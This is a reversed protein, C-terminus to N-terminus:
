RHHDHIPKMFAEIADFEGKSITKAASQLSEQLWGGGFKDQLFGRAYDSGNKHYTFRYYEIFVDVVYTSGGILVITLWFLPSNHTIGVIKQVKSVSWWDSFWVYGIYVCVSMISYFFFSVSTWWKTQTVLKMTVVTYLCTFSTLSLTWIDVNQGNPLLVNNDQFIAIPVLCIILSHAIGILNQYMYNNWTFLQQKAGIYYLAPYLKKVDDGELVYNIDQEFLARIVLPWSTFFLNYFSIYNDDFITMGSFGNTFAFYLHPVTLVLNKYFFYLICEANRLYCLRGHHMLLRWLYKFEGLAFDSSQVASMGENGYLGIGIHAERIMSVDNAGDGISLTIIEPDDNKILRVVDAKQSPSVRCAIVAEATKSIKLFQSKYSPNDLIIGLAKAEVLLGLM